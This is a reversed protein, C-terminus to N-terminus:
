KTRHKEPGLYIEIAPIKESRIWERLRPLIEEDTEYPVDCQLSLGDRVFAGGGPNLMFGLDYEAMLERIANRAEM